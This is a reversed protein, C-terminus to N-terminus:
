IALWGSFNNATSSSELYSLKLHIKKSLINHITWFCWFFTIRIIILKLVSFLNRHCLSISRDFNHKAELFFLLFGSDRCYHLTHLTKSFVVKEITSRNICKINSHCKNQQRLGEFSRFRHCDWDTTHANCIWHSQWNRHRTRICYRCSDSIVFTLLRPSHIELCLLCAMWESNIGNKDLYERPMSSMSSMYFYLCTEHLSSHLPMEAFEYRKVM